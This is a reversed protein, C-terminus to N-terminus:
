GVYFFGWCVWCHEVFDFRAVDVAEADECGM